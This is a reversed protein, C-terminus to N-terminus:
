EECLDMAKIAQATKDSDAMESVKKYVESFSRYIDGRSHVDSGAFSILGENLLKRAFRKVGMGYQGNLSGTNIQFLVGNEVWAAFKEMKGSLYLYREPHAIIPIIGGALLKFLVIEAFVPLQHFSLEVLVYRNNITVATNKKIRDPLDPTIAIEAGLILNADMGTKTCEDRLMGFTERMLHIRDWDADEKIHPTLIFTKVGARGGRELIWMSEALDVAGDDIGPLIHTHM